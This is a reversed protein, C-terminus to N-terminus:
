GRRRPADSLRSPTVKQGKRNIKFHLRYIDPLDIKDKALRYVVGLRALEDLIRNGANGFDDETAETTRSLAKVVEDVAAPFAIDKLQELRSIVAHDEQVEQVRHDSAERLAEKLEDPALLRQYQGRPTENLARAAASKFLTIMSRPAIVGHADKLHNPVWTWSYGSRPDAGQGMREGVLHSM